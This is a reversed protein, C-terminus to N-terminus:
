APATLTILFTSLISYFLAAKLGDPGRPVSSVFGRSSKLLIHKEVVTEIKLGTVITRSPLKLFLWRAETLLSGFLIVGPLTIHCLAVLTLNM